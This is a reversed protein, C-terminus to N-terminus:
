CFPTCQVGNEYVSNAAFSVSNSSGNFAFSARTNYLDAPKVYTDFGQKTLVTNSGGTDTITDPAASGFDEGTLLLSTGTTEWYPDYETATDNTLIETSGKGNDLSITAYEPGETIFDQSTLFTITEASGVVFNGTLPAGYLDDSTVGTITYPM